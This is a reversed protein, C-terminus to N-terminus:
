ASVRAWPAFANQSGRLAPLLAPFHRLLVSAMDNQDIWDIGVQTYVRPSYDVTFFRDSKLRRSAMLIFIRFATDSFGFGPPLPEAFCGVTADVREVDGYVRRLEQAWTPNDTMEEFTAPARLHLLRRLENYRPVGLERSRLIDTSALDVIVGDPREYRQLGKPFNHLRLAGPHSVGFSYFLDAMPLRELLPQTKPGATEPFTHEAVVRDDAVSRFTFDDPMLPHMRYVTVFEETIAYPATHHNTETGPIGSIVENRTLRGVLKYLRETELGWWNGELAFKTTPHSIIAPTWEVTHIKAMLAANVLRAHDFLDDDSWEPYAQKLRDCIANHERAFLTQLLALGLWWGPVQGLETLMPGLIAGDPTLALKGDVRSRVQQQAERSSGYIQSGDWWHSEINIWTPPYGDKTTPRTPDHQTRLITMPREHWPDDDRLPLEWPNEKQGRGHSFWDRIMFQLWAGALLNLTTAPQFQARTMLERSVTRPNPELIAPEPEPFTYENPINRGFRTGARGMQPYSLDNFSGDATRATLRRPGTETLLAPGTSPFTSTDYLNKQRLLVRNGILVLLGLPTPLRWWGVLRDTAWAVKAFLLEARSTLATSRSAALAAAVVAGGIVVRRVSLVSM